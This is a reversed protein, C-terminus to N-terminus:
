NNLVEQQFNNAEGLSALMQWFEMPTKNYKRQNCTSHAVKVNNYTHTGNKSIPIVHDYQETGRSVFDGCLYCIGCSLNWIKNFDLKDALSGNKTARRAHDRSKKATRSTPRNAYDKLINAMQEPHNVRWRRSKAREKLRYTEDAIRRQKQYDRSWKRMFESRKQLKKCEVCGKDCVQREAIHGRKCPKGTFYKTLGQEKAQQRGVIDKM